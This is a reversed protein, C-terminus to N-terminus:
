AAEYTIAWALYDTDGWAFPNSAGLYTNGEFRCRFTSAGADIVAAGIYAQTGVDNGYAVGVQVVDAAAAVPLAIRIDTGTFSGGTGLTIKGRVHVLGGDRVFRAVNSGGTGLTVSTSTVSAAYDEWALEAAVPAPPLVGPQRVIQRIFERLEDPDM